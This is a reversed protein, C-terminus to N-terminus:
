KITFIKSVSFTGSCVLVEDNAVATPSRLSTYNYTGRIVVKKPLIRENITAGGLSDGSGALPLPVVQAGIVVQSGDANTLAAPFPSNYLLLLNTYIPAGNTTNVVEIFDGPVSPDTSAGQVYVVALSSSSSNTSGTATLADQIFSKNSIKTTVIAGSDNTTQSTGKITVQYVTQGWGQIAFAIMGSLIAMMIKSNKM